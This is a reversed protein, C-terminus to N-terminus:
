YDHKTWFKKFVRLRLSEDILLDSCLDIKLRNYLHAFIAKTKQITCYEIRSSQNEFNVPSIVIMQTKISSSKHIQNTVSSHQLLDDYDLYFKACGKTNVFTKLFYRIRDQLLQLDNRKSVISLYILLKGVVKIVAFSTFRGNRSDIIGYFKGVHKILVLERRYFECMQLFSKPYSSNIADQITIDFDFLRDLNKSNVQFKLVPHRTKKVYELNKVASKKALSTALISYNMRVSIMKEISCSVFILIV